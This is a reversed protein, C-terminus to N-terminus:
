HGSTQLLRDSHKQQVGKFGAIFALAAQLVALRFFYLVQRLNEKSAENSLHEILRFTGPKDFPPALPSGPCYGRAANSPALVQHM